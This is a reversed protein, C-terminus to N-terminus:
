DTKKLLTVEQDYATSETYAALYQEYVPMDFSNRNAAIAKLHHEKNAEIILENDDSQLITAYYKFDKGDIVFNLELEKEAVKFSGSYSDRSFTSIGRISLDTNEFFCTGDTKFDIFNTNQLTNISAQIPSEGPTRIYEYIFTIEYKGEIKISAPQLETDSGCSRALLTFLFLISVLTKM